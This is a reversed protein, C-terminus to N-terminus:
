RSFVPAQPIAVVAKQGALASANTVDRDRHAGGPSLAPKFQLVGNGTNAPSSLRTPAPIAGAQSPAAPPSSVFRLRYFGANGSIPFNL